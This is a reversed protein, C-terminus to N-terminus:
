GCRRRNRPASPGRSRPRRVAVDLPDRDLVRHEPAVAGADEQEAVFAAGGEHPLDRQAVQVDDVEGHRREQEFRALVHPQLVDGDLVHTQVPFALALEDAQLRHDVLVHALLHGAEHAVHPEAVDGDVARGALVQDLEFAGVGFVVDAVHGELVDRDVALRQGCSLAAQPDALVDLSHPEGRVSSSPTLSRLRACTRAM